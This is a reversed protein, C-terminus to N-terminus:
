ILLSYLVGELRKKREKKFKFINELKGQCSPSLSTASPFFTPLSSSPPSLVFLCLFLILPIYTHTHACEIPLLTHKKFIIETFNSSSLLFLNYLNFTSRFTFLLHFNLFCVSSTSDLWLLTSLVKWATSIQMISLLLYLWEIIFVLLLM